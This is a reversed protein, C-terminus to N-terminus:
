NTCPFAENLAFAMGYMAPLARYSRNQRKVFWARVVSQIDDRSTRSPICVPMGILLKDQYSIDSIGSIYGSCLLKEGGSSCCWSILDDGTTLVSASVSATAVVTALVAGRIRRMLRRGDNNGSGSMIYRTYICSCVVFGLYAVLFTGVAAGIGIESYVYAAPFVSIIIGLM